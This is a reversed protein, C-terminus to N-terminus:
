TKTQAVTSGMMNHEVKPELTRVRWVSGLVMVIIDLYVYFMIAGMPPNTTSLFGFPRPSWAWCGFATGIFEVFLVFLPMIMYILRQKMSLVGLFYLLGLLVTFSDRFVLFVGLFIAAYLALFLKIIGESRRHIKSCWLIQFGTGVVLAHGFPVYLPVYGFKYTYLDIGMSFFVEGVASVPITILMIKKLREDPLTRIMAFLYLPVLFNDLVQGNFGHALVWKSDLFLVAATFPAFAYFSWHFPRSRIM